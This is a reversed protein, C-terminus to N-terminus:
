LCCFDNKKYVSPKNKSRMRLSFPSLFEQREKKDSWILVKGNVSTSVWRYSEPYCRLTYSTADQKVEYFEPCDHSDCFAPPSKKASPEAYPTASEAGPKRFPLKSMFKEAASGFSTGLRKSFRAESSVLFVVLLLAVVKM